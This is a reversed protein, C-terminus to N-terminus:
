PSFEASIPRVKKVIQPARIQHILPHPIPVLLELLHLEPLSPMFRLVWHVEELSAGLTMAEDEGVGVIPRGRDRPENVRLRGFPIFLDVLSHARGDIRQHFYRLM